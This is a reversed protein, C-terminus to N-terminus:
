AATSIPALSRHTGCAAAWSRVFSRCSFVNSWSFWRAALPQPSNGSHAFNPMGLPCTWPGSGRRPLPRGLFHLVALSLHSAQFQFLLPQIGLFRPRGLVPRRIPTLSRSRFLIRFRSHCVLRFPCAASVAGTVKISNQISSWLSRIRPLRRPQYKLISLTQAWGSPWRAATLKRNASGSGLTRRLWYAM